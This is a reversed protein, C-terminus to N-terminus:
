GTALNGAIKVVIRREQVNVMTEGVDEDSNERRRKTQPATTPVASSASSEPTTSVPSTPVEHNTTATGTLPTPGSASPPPIAQPAELLPQMSNQYPHVRKPIPCKNVRHGSDSCNRCPKRCKRQDHDTDDCNHCKGQRRNGIDAEDPVATSIVSASPSTSRVSPPYTISQPLTDGVLLPPSGVHYPQHNQLPNRLIPQVPALLYTQSRMRTRSLRENRTHDLVVRVGPDDQENIFCEVDPDELLALFESTQVATNSLDYTMSFFKNLLAFKVRCITSGLNRELKKCEGFDRLLDLPGYDAKNEILTVVSIRKDTKSLLVRDPTNLSALISM